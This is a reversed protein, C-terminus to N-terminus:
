RITIPLNVYYIAKEEYAGIDCFAEGDGNGDIPRQFLSSGRQDDSPSQCNSGLPIADIAPSTTSTFGYTLTSGLHSSMGSTLMASQGTIDGTGDFSCADSSSDILNYGWSSINTGASQSIACNVSNRAFIANKIIPTFGSIFLGENVNDAITAYTIDLTTSSTAIGGGLGSGANNSAITTNTISASSTSSQLTRTDLGGGSVVATNKYIASHNITLIGENYIGGGVKAKNASISAYDISLHSASGRNAIGGGAGDAALDVQNGDLIVQSLSLNGSDNLVGGGYNKYKYGGSIKMNQLTVTAGSQIHFIRDGFSSGAAYITTSQASAGTITISATIDLDGTSVDTETGGPNVITLKYSGAPLIIKNGTPCGGFSAGQNAAKVANRLSCASGGYTDQTTNVQITGTAAMVPAPAATGYVALSFLFIGALISRRIVNRTM